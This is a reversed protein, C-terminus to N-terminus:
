SLNHKRKRRIAYLQATDIQTHGLFEKVFHIDAGNEILHTAISRRFSHLTITKKELEPLRKVIKKVTNNMIEGRLKYGIQNIFLSYVHNAKNARRELHIYNKLDHIVKDSLPVERRKGNKAKRVILFGVSLDLDTLLLNEIETRRLGCGYAVSLLATELHNECVEYLAKIQAVTLIELPAQKERLYKPILPLSEFTKNELLYDFLLSLAFLHHNITNQSLTGARRKNSRTKLYVYYATLDESTIELEALGRKKLFDFYEKVAAQYMTGGGTKYGRIEVLRTYNKLVEEFIRTQKM